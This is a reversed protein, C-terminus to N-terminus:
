PTMIEFLNSYENNPNIVQLRLLRPSSTVPQRQYILQTCDLHILKEHQQLGISTLPIGDVLLSSQPTFNIGSILLEYKNFQSDGNTVAHIAPATIVALSLPTTIYDGQKVTIHHLGGNLPAPITFSISESSQFRCPIVAGDLLLLSDPTFHSGQVSIEQSKNTCNTIQDPTLRSAIPRLSLVQLNYTRTFQASRITLAYQGPPTQLPITAELRTPDSLRANIRSGGLWVSTDERFGNGSIILTRGPEVPSPSISFVALNNKTTSPQAALATTLAPLMLLLCAFLSTRTFVFM